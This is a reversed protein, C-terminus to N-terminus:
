KMYVISMKIIRIIVEEMCYAIEAFPANTFDPGLIKGYDANMNIGFTNMPTLTTHPVNLNKEGLM